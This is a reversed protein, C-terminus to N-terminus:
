ETAEIFASELQLSDYGYTVRQIAREQNGEDWRVNIAIVRLSSEAESNAASDTGTEGPESESGIAAALDFPTVEIEVRFEDEDSETLGLEPPAGDQLALEIESLHRDAILSALLLRRTEGQARVGGAAIGALVTYLLGM